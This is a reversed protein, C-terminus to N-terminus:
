VLGQLQVLCYGSSNAGVVVTGFGSPFIARGSGDVAGNKRVRGAVTDPYVKAGAVMTTQALMYVYGRRVVEIETTGSACSNTIIGLPRDTTSSATAQKITWATASMLVFGPKLVSKSPASFGAVNQLGDYKVVNYIPYTM